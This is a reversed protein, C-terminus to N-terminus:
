ANVEALLLEERVVRGVQPHDAVGLKKLIGRIVVAIMLGQAEAIRVQREAIGADICTKAVKTLRDREENYMKIWVSPKWEPIAGQGGGVPGVMNVDLLDGEDQLEGVKHRLWAVHGACRALEDLLAQYPDTDVPLGYQEVAAAARLRQVEAKYTPSAGGHHQCRGIGPHDTKHGAPQKCLTGDPKRANCRDTPEVTRTQRRKGRHSRRKTKARSVGM